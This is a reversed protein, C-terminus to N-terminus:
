GSPFANHVFVNVIVDRGPGAEAGQHPRDPPWGFFGFAHGLPLGPSSLVGHQADEAQAQPLPCLKTDGTRAASLRPPQRPGSDGVTGQGHGAGSLSASRPRLRLPQRRLGWGGRRNLKVQEQLELVLQDYLLLAPVGFLLFMCIECYFSM